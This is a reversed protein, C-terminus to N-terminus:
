PISRVRFHGCFNSFLVSFAVCIKANVKAGNDYKMKCCKLVSFFKIRQCYSVSPESRDFAVSGYM